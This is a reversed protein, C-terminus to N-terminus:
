FAKFWKTKNENENIRGKEKLNEWETRTIKGCKESFNERRKFNVGGQDKEKRRIEYWRENM